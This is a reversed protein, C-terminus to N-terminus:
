SFLSSPVNKIQCLKIVMSVQRSILCMGTIQGSPGSFMWSECFYELESNKNQKTKEKGTAVTSLHRILIFFFTFIANQNTFAEQGPQSEVPIPLVHAAVSPWARLTCAVEQQCGGARLPVFTEM